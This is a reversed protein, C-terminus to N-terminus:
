DDVEARQEKLAKSLFDLGKILSERADAGDARIGVGIVNGDDDKARTFGFDGYDSTLSIFTVAGDRADGTAAMATMITEEGVVDREFGSIKKGDKFTVGIERIAYM